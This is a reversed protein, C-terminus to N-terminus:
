HNQSNEPEQTKPSLKAAKVIEPAEKCNQDNQFHQQM